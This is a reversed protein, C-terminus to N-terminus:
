IPLRGFAYFHKQWYATNISAYGIPDGCHLMTGNGVYIGVHTVTRGANWTRTFFILDGAVAEEKPIKVCKNYIDQATTRPLHYVGSKTFSWCVFASCDFGTIPSNGGLVYRLGIHKTAEKMLREFAEPNLADTNSWDGFDGNQNYYYGYEELAEEITAFNETGGFMDSLEEANATFIAEICTLLLIICVIPIGIIWALRKRNEEDRLVVLLIRVVTTNM